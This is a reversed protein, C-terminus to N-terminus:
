VNPNRPAEQNTLISLAHFQARCGSCRYSRIQFLKDAVRWFGTPRSSRVKIAGCNFCQPIQRGRFVAIMLFYLAIFTILIAGPKIFYLLQRM